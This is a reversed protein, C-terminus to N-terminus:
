LVHELEYHWTKIVSEHSLTSVSLQFIIPSCSSSTAFMHSPQQNSVLYPTSYAHVTTQCMVFTTCRPVESLPCESSYVVERCHVCQEGGAQGYMEVESCHVFREDGNYGNNLSAMRHSNYDIYIIIVLLKLTNNTTEITSLFRPVLPLVFFFVKVIPSSEAVCCLGYVRYMCIYTSIRPRLNYVHSDSLQM